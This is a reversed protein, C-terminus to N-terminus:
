TSCTAASTWNGNWPDADGPRLAATRAAPQRAKRELASALAKFGDRLNLSDGGYVDLTSAPNRALLSGLM